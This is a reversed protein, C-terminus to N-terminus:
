AKAADNPSRFAFRVTKKQRLSARTDSATGTGSGSAQNTGSSKRCRRIGPWFTSCEAWPPEHSALVMAIVNNRLENTDLAERRQGRILMKLVNGREHEDEEQRISAIMDLVLQDLHKMCKELKRNSELPLRNKLPLAMRAPDFVEAIVFDMADIGPNSLEQLHKFDFGFLAAGASDLSVAKLWRTLPITMGDATSAAVKERLAQCLFRAKDNFVTSFVHVSNLAPHTLQRIRHWQEGNALVVNSSGVWKFYYPMNLARPDSKAFVHYDKSIKEALSSSTVVIVPLPGAFMLYIDGHKKMRELDINRLLTSRRLVIESLTAFLGHVPIARPLATKKSGTSTRLPQFKARVRLCYFHLSIASLAVPGLLALIWAPRAPM